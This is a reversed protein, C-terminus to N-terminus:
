PREDSREDVDDARKGHRHEADGAVPPQAVASGLRALWWGLIMAAVFGVLPWSAASLSALAPGPCYGSLAWGVGFLVAGGLLRGDVDRRSPLQFRAGFRPRGRRWVMRYGIFTTVVAGGLVFMLTPDWAGTVDLFGIVRAPDTMGSLILGLGFLLGALLGSLVIM